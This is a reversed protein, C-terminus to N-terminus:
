LHACLVMFSHTQAESSGWMQIITTLVRLVICLECPHAHLCPIVNYVCQVKTYFHKWPLPKPILSCEFRPKKDNQDPGCSM